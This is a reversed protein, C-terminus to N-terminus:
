SFTHGVTLLYAYFVNKEDWAELPVIMCECSVNCHVQAFRAVEGMTLGHRQPLPMMGVFSRFADDLVIGEVVNGGVPNVRDLVVVRIDNKGCAEMLLYLTSIYTYVRTGVDQLDVVVTDIGKLMEETAIRTHSYLSYVPLKFYPHVYDQTEVM